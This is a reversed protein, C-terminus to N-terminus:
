PTAEAPANAAVDDQPSDSLRSLLRSVREMDAHDISNDSYFAREFSRAAADYTDSLDPRQTSVIKGFDGATAGSVERAINADILEVIALRFGAIVAARWDGQAVAAAMADRLQEPHVVEDFVVRASTEEVEEKKPRHRIARYIAFALLLLAAVLLVIAITQGAAGGGGGFLLGFIRSLTDGIFELVRNVSRQFIGPESSSIFGERGLIDDALDNAEEDTIVAM